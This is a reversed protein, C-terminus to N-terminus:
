TPEIITNNNNTQEHHLNIMYIKNSNSFQDHLDQEHHLYTWNYHQQQVKYVSTSLFYPLVM